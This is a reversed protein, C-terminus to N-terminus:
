QKPTIRISDDAVVIDMNTRKSKIFENLEENSPYAPDTGFHRADDIIIVHGRDPPNLIHHLEEYIPTDKNGKATVGGSYHSDLWFLASRHIKNIVNLLEKGCDGHIIEIHRQEKFRKKAKEYLDNSLEISYIHDFSSKMAEVMDGYFTGTEVLIRLGYKNSYEQLIRSKIIRPPPVPRGKNEWEKLQKEQIHKYLWNWKRLTYQLPSQKIVHEIFEKM